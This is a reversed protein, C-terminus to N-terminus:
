KETKLLVILEELRDVLYQRYNVLSTDGQKGDHNIDPTNGLVSAMWHVDKYMQALAKGQTLAEKSGQPGGTATWTASADQYMGNVWGRTDRMLNLLERQEDDTLAMLFGGKQGENVLNIFVDMPFGPGPDWHSGDNTGKTYDDHTIIGKQSARVGAPGIHVKPIGYQDCKWSVWKAAQVLRAYEETLWKNRSWAAFGGIEINLSRQNGNRLTWAAYQDDVYSVVKNRDAGAHSSAQRSAPQFYKGLDDADLIGETTHIAVWIIKQGNRSSYNASQIQAM